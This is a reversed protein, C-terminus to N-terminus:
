VSESAVPAQPARPAAAGARAAAGSAPVAAGAAAAPADDGGSAAAAAGARNTLALAAAERVQRRRQVVAVAVCPACLCAALLLIPAGIALALLVTIFLASLQLSMLFTPGPASRAARGRAGVCFCPWCLLWSVLAVLLAPVGLLLVVVAAIARHTSAAPQARAQAACMWLNWFGYHSEKEALTNLQPAPLPASPSLHSGWGRGMWGGVKAGCEICFRCSCVSCTVADCGGSKAVRVGCGPCPRFGAARMAAEAAAADPATAAEYDACTRGAHAGAHTWCFKSGCAGCSLAPAAASGGSVLEGCRPCDRLGPDARLAVFRRYRAALSRDTGGEREGYQQLVAEVLGGPIEADCVPLDSDVTLEDHAPDYPCRFEVRGESIGASFWSLLCESDFQHGCPLKSGAEPRPELCIQCTFGGSHSIEAPALDGSERRVSIVDHSADTAM